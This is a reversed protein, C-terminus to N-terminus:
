SKGEQGRQMRGWIEEDSLTPLHRYAFGELEPEFQCVSKYPCYTCALEKKRRYPAVDINGQSIELGLHSLKGRVFHQLSEWRDHAVLASHKALTGDKKWELTVVPSKGQELEIDMLRASEVEDVLLGRMKFEKFVNEAIELPLGANSKLLMPRHVHFYLAGAAQAPAGLWIPAHQITVDTYALLQLQLGYYIKNLELRHERSKYDIVRIYHQEQGRVYDIRDIQGSLELTRGNALPLTLPPLTGDRRFDIEAAFQKYASRRAQKVLTDVTHAVVQKLKTAVYRHRNSSLLISSLLRPSLQDIMAYAMEYAETEALDGWSKGQEILKKAILSLAAHYLQGIDPSQLRYEKREKLKLGYLAFHAFPCAAFKELRSVSSRITDGFLAIATEESLRKHEHRFFLAPTLEALKARWYPRDLLWHYVTFWIGSIAEGRQWNRLQPLLESIARDPRTLRELIMPDDAQKPIEHAISTIPISPVWARLISIWESPLLTKGEADAISYSIWLGESPLFWAHYILFREDLLRRRSDPALSIGEDQLREREFETLISQERPKLPIVGENVGLMFLYKVGFSRTRDMDGILVQDIAPPVLGIRIGDLGTALMGAFIELDATEHGVLEVMQDLLDILRTWVQEHERAQELHGLQQAQERWSELRQYSGTQQL